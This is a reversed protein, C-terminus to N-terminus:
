ELYEPGDDDDLGDDEAPPTLVRGKHKSRGRISDEHEENTYLARTATETGTKLTVKLLNRLNQAAVNRERKEKDLKSRLNDYARKYNFERVDVEWDRVDRIRLCSPTM